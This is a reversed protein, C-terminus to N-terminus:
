QGIGALQEFRGGDGAHGPVPQLQQLRHALIGVLWQVLQRQEIRVLRCKQLLLGRARLCWCRRRCQLHELGLHLANGIGQRQCEGALAQAVGLQVGAGVRQGQLQDLQADTSLHANAQGGPARQFHHDAQQGHPLGPRSIYRQVRCERGLPQGVHDFVAPDTHQQGLLRQLGAQRVDGPHRGQQEVGGPRFHTRLARLAGDVSALQGVDDVGGTGGAGGLTHGDAVAGQAVVQLANELGQRQLACAVHRHDGGQSRVQPMGHQEACQAGPPRQVDDLLVHGEVRLAEAGVHLAMADVHQFDHRRVQLRQQAGILRLLHQRSAAQHETALGTRRCQDFAQAGQAAAVDDVVVARGFGGDAYQGLVEARCVAGDHQAPWQGVGAGLHEIGAQLQLRRAAVTLQVDTASAKGTPVLVTWAHGGLAEHRVGETCRTRAQIACTVPHTAQGRALQREKATDIALDLQAAVADVQIFHQQGQTCRGLHAVRGHQQHAFGGMRLQHGIHDVRVSVRLRLQLRPQLRTQRVVHQGAGILGQGDHGQGGVALEVGARQRLRGLRTGGVGMHRRYSLALTGQRADPFLHEFHRCDAKAVVEEAQAAM